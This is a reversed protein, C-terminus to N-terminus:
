LLSETRNKGQEKALYLAEDAKRIMEHLVKAIDVSEFKIIHFGFSATIRVCIEDFRFDAKEIAKRIRDCQIHM